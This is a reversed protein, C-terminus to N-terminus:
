ENAGRHSSILSVTTAGCRLQACATCGVHLECDGTLFLHEAWRLTTAKKLDAGLRHKTFGRLTM